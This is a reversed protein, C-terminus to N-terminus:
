KIRPPGLWLVSGSLLLLNVRVVVELDSMIDNLLFRDLASMGGSLVFKLGTAVIRLRVFRNQISLASSCSSSFMVECIGVECYTGLLM